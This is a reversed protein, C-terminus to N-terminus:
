QTFLSFDTTRLAANNADKSQTKVMDADNKLACVDGVLGSVM